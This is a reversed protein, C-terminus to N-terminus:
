DYYHVLATGATSTAIMYLQSLNNAGDVTFEGGAAVVLGTVNTLASAGPDMRYRCENTMIRIVAGRRKRKGAPQVKLATLQVPTGAVSISEYDVFDPTIPLAAVSM